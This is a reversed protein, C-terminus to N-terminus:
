AATRFGTGTEEAAVPVLSVELPEWDVATRTEPNTTRDTTSRHVKYGVSLPIQIGDQLDQALRQALESGRSFKIRAILSGSELRASGPVIGGLVSNMGSTWNHSDLVACGQDLRGMRVHGPAMSLVEDFTGDWDQRRVAMGTSLIADIERSEPDLGRPRALGKRTWLEDSVFGDRRHRIVERQAPKVIPLLKQLLDHDLDDNLRELVRSFWEIQSWYQSVLREAERNVTAILLQADSATATVRHAYEDIKRDDDRSHDDFSKAGWRRQAAKSAALATLFGVMGRPGPPVIWEVSATGRRSNVHKTVLGLAAGIVLHASEHIRRIVAVIEYEPEPVAVRQTPHPSDTEGIPRFGQEFYKDRLDRELSTCGVSGFHWTSM